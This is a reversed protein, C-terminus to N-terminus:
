PIFLGPAIESDSRSFNPHGLDFASAAVFHQKLRRGANIGDFHKAVAAARPDPHAQATIEFANLCILFVIAEHSEKAWTAPPQLDRGFAGHRGM